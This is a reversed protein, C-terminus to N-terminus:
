PEVLLSRTAYPWRPFPCPEFYSFKVALEGDGTPTALREIDALRLRYAKGLRDFRIVWDEVGLDLLRQYVAAPLSPTAFRRNGYPTGLCLRGDPQHFVKGLCILRGAKRWQVAFPPRLLVTTASV